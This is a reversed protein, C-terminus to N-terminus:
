NGEAAPLKQRPESDVTDEPTAWAILRGIFPLGHTTEFWAKMDTWDRFGDARAFDDLDTRPHDGLTIGDERIACYTSVVCIPDPDVLKRCSATRMGTYLQVPAGVRAHPTSREARITQTKAGSAVAEAFRRQFNYAVM